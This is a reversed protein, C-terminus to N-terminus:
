TEPDIRKMPYVTMPSIPDTSFNLGFEVAKVIEEIVAGRDHAKVAGALADNLQMSASTHGPKGPTNIFIPKGSDVSAGILQLAQSTLYAQMSGIAQLVIGRPELRIMIGCRDPRWQDDLFAIKRWGCHWNWCVPPRQEYIGCGRKPVLHECPVDEPKQLEETDIRLHVCCATCEGCERGPVLM